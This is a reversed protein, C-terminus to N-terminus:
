AREVALTTGRVERVTVTEGVALPEDSEARWYVDGVLVTGGLASVPETVTGVRGVLRNDADVEDARDKRRNRYLKRFLWLSVGSLVLFVVIQGPIIKWVLSLVATLLASPVFWISVLATTMLELVLMVVALVVWFLSMSM